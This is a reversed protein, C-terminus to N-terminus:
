MSWYLYGDSGFQVQERLLPEAAVLDDAPEMAKIRLPVMLLTISSFGSVRTSRFEADAFLQEEVITLTGDDGITIDVDYGVIRESFQAQAPVAALLVVGMAMVLMAMVLVLGIPLALLLLLNVAFAGLFM